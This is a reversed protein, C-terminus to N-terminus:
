PLRSRKRKLLVPHLRSGPLGMFSFTEARWLASLYRYLYMVFLYKMISVVGFYCFLLKKLTLIVMSYLSSLHPTPPLTWLLLFCMVFSSKKGLRKKKEKFDSM